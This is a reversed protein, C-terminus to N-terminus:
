ILKLTSVTTKISVVTMRIVISPIWSGTSACFMVELTRGECKGTCSLVEVGALGAV